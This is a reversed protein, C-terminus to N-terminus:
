DFAASPWTRLSRVFDSSFRRSRTSAVARLLAGALFVDALFHHRRFTGPFRGCRARPIGAPSNGQLRAHECDPGRANVEVVGTGTRRQDQQMAPVVVGLGPDAVDSREDGGAVADDRRIQGTEPAGAHRADVVRQAAVGAERLAE